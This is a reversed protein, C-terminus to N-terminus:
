LSICCHQAECPKQQLMDRSLLDIRSDQTKKKKWNNEKERKDGGEREKKSIIDPDLKHCLSGNTKMLATM